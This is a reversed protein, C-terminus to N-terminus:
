RSDLRVVGTLAGAVAVLSASVLYPLGIWGGGMRMGLGFAGALAPGAVVAGVGQVLAIATNLLAVHDESVLASAVSRLASYFGWGLALLSIGLIFLPPHPALAMLTLGLVLLCASTRAILLDKPIPPLYKSLLHSITPLILLLLALNIIGKLSILISAEAMSWGFRKSAYQLLLQLAQQGVNGAFFAASIALVAKDNWIFERIRRLQTVASHLVTRFLGINNDEDRNEDATSQADNDGHLIKPLTEPIFLLIALGVFECILSLFYPLWASKTMLFASIPNALIEATLASAAIIFFKNTRTEVPYIDTVSTFVMSQAIQAGGGCIQFLSTFWITRPPITPSNWCIIRLAVEQMILGVLSLLAVKKRGIRDAMFGFPLALIIGPLQDFTEKWGTLLALESQVDVDKCTSSFTIADPHLDRCIIDELIQTQPAISLYSAFDITVIVTCLVFLIWHAQRSTITRTSALLPTSEDAM